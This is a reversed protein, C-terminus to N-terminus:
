AGVKQVIARGADRARDVVGAALGAIINAPPQAPAHPHPRTPATKKAVRMMEGLRELTERDLAKRLRPFMQDEEERIHHRIERMLTRMLPDLEGDGADMRDLKALLEKATQHEEIGEDALRAGGRVDDRITPYLLEEEIAAHISLERVVQRVINTRSKRAGASLKAFRKFLDQVERHDQKLL